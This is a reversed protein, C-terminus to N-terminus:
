RRTSPDFFNLFYFFIICHTHPFMHSVAEPHEVVLIAILFFSFCFIICHTLIYLHSVAEPHEVALVAVLKANVVQFLEDDVRLLHEHAFFFRLLERYLSRVYCPV